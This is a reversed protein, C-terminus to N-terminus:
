GLCGNPMKNRKRIQRIPVGAIPMKNGKRLGRPGRHHMEEVQYWPPWPDPDGSNFDPGLFFIGQTYAIKEGALAKLQLHSKDHEHSELLRLLCAYEAKTPQSRSSAM